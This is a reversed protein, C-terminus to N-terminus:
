IMMNYNMILLKNHYVKVERKRLTTGNESKDYLKVVWSKPKCVRMEIPIKFEFDDKFKAPVELM